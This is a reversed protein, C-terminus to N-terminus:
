GEAVFARQNDCLRFRRQSYSLYLMSLLYDNYFWIKSFIKRGVLEVPIFGIMLRSGVLLLGVM